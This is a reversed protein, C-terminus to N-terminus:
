NEKIIKVKCGFKKEVDEMTVEKVNDREYDDRLEIKDGVKLEHIEKM